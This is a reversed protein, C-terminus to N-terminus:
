QYCTSQKPQRALLMHQKPNHSDSFLTETGDFKTWDQTAICSVRPWFAHLSSVSTKQYSATEHPGQQAYMLLHQIVITNSLKNLTDKKQTDRENSKTNLLLPCPCTEKKQFLFFDFVSVIYGISRHRTHLPALICESEHPVPEEAYSARAYSTSRNEYTFWSKRGTKAAPLKPYSSTSEV